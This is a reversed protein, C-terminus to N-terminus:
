NEKYTLIDIRRAKCMLFLVPLEDSRHSVHCAIVIVRQQVALIINLVFTICLSCGLMCLNSLDERKIKVICYTLQAVSTTKM